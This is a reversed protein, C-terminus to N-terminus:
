SVLGAQLIGCGGEGGVFTVEGLGHVIVGQGETRSFSTRGAM